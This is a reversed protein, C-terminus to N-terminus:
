KTEKVDYEIEIIRSQRGTHDCRLSKQMTGDLEEVLNRILQIIEEQNM